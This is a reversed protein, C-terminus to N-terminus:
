PYLSAITSELTLGLNFLRLDHFAIGECGLTLLLLPISKCLMYITGKLIMTVVYQTNGGAIYKVYSMETVSEYEHKTVIGKLFKFEIEGERSEEWKRSPM